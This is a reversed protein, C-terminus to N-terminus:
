VLPAGEIGTESECWCPAASSRCKGHGSDAEEESWIEMQGCDPCRVIQARGAAVDAMDLIPHRM